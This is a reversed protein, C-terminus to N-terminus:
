KQTIVCKQLKANKCDKVYNRCIDTIRDVPPTQCVGGPLWLEGSVGGPCVAGPLWGSGPLWGWPCVGGLCVGRSRCWHASVCGEQASVGQASVCGEQFVGGQASLGGLCVGRWCVAVAASPVLVRSTGDAATATQQLPTLEMRSSHM